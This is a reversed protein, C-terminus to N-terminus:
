AVRFGSATMAAVAIPEVTGDVTLNREILDMAGLDQVKQLQERWAAFDAQNLSTARDRLVDWHRLGVIRQGEDLPLTPDTMKTRIEFGAVGAAIGFAMGAGGVITVLPYKILMRLALKFDLLFGASQIRM